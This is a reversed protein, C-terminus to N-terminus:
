TRLSDGHYQRDSRPMALSRWDENRLRGWTNRSFLREFCEDCWRKDRVVRCTDPDRRYGQSVPNGCCACPM